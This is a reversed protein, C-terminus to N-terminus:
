HRIVFGAGLEGRPEVEIVEDVGAGPPGSRLAAALADLQGDGGAAEVRVGGDELNRVEGAVGLSRAQQRTWWRFGVGQVHGRVVFARRKM